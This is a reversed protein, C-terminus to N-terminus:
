AIAVGVFLLVFALAMFISAFKFIQFTIRESPQRLNTLSLFSLFSSLVAILILVLPHVELLIATAIIAAADLFASITIVRMTQTEGAVVPWMPIEARIYGEFNSPILALTLIHLPIWCLVFLLIFIGILDIKDVAATRGALAPLGGAIGGFIISVRTRRKLWLSYVVVDFFFGFFVVIMTTVNVFFGTLLIGTTTLLIGHTLAASPSVQGSPLPRCKTRDMQGDIDRDIFMNLLTSGSIALFLGVVLGMLQDGNVRKPWSSILYAFLATYIMLFTQKGKILDGYLHLPILFPSVGGQSKIQAMMEPGATESM